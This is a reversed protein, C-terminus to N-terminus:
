RCSARGIELQLFCSLYDLDQHRLRSDFNNQPECHADSRSKALLNNKASIQLALKRCDGAANRQSHYRLSQQEPQSVNILSRLAHKHNRHPAAHESHQRQPALAKTWSHHRMCKVIGQGSEGPPEHHASCTLNAAIDYVFAGAIVTEAGCTRQPVFFSVKVEQPERM